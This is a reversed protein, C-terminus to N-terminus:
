THRACVWETKFDLAVDFVFTLAFCPTFVDAHCLSICFSAGGKQVFVQRVFAHPTETAVVLADYSVSMESFTAYPLVDVPLKIQCDIALQCTECDIVDLLFWQIM